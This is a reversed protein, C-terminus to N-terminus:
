IKQRRELSRLSDIIAGWSIYENKSMHRFCECSPVIKVHCKVLGSKCTTRTEQSLQCEDYKWDKMLNMGGKLRLFNSWYFKGWRVNVWTKINSRLYRSSASRTLGTRGQTHSRRIASLGIADEIMLCCSKIPVTRIRCNM